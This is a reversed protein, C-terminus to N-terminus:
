FKKYKKHHYVKKKTVEKGKFTRARYTPNAKIIKEQLSATILGHQPGIKQIVGASSLSGHVMAEPITKNKILATMFGTSFADGAGTREIVPVHFTPCFYFQEGDYTYSGNPGDTITIIKAGTKHLGKLLYPFDHKNTKLLRKAEETNIFVATSLAFLPKLKKLGLNIQHTGPNFGLLPKHKKLYQLLPKFIKESGKGMSTLYLAKAKPLKPFKYQRPEHHVLITREGKYYLVVSYNTKQGKKRYFYKTSVNNKKLETYILQGQTDDGVEAYLASKLGLRRTGIAVNGANGGLLKNVKEIALKTGFKFDLKCVDNTTCHLSAAKTVEVFVDETVDGISILDLM